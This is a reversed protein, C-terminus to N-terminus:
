RSCSRGNLCALGLEDSHEGASTETRKRSSRSAASWRRVAGLRVTSRGWSRAGAGDATGSSKGQRSQLQAGAAQPSNDEQAGVARLKLALEGCLGAILRWYCLREAQLLADEHHLSAAPGDSRGCPQSHRRGGVRRAEGSAMGARMPLGGLFDDQAAAAPKKQSRELMHVM